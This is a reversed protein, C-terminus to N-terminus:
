IGFLKTPEVIQRLFVGQHEVVLVVLRMKYFQSAVAPVVFIPNLLPHDRYFLYQHKINEWNKSLEPEMKKYIKEPLIIRASWLAAEYRVLLELAISAFYDTHRSKFGEKLFRLDFSTNHDVIVDSGIFDLVDDKVGPISPMGQVM